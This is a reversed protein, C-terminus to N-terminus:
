ALILKEKIKREDFKKNFVDEPTFVENKKGRIFDKKIEASQRKLASVWQWKVSM